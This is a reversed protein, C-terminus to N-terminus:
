ACRLHGEIEAKAFTSAGFGPLLEEKNRFLKSGGETAFALEPFREVGRVLGLGFLLGGLEARVYKFAEGKLATSQGAAKPRGGSIMSYTLARSSFV